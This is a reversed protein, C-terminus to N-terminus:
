KQKIISKALSSAEKISSPKKPASLSISSAGVDMKIPSSQTIKSLYDKVIREKIGQNSFIFKNLFEEDESYQEATKYSTSLLNLAEDKIDADDKNRLSEKLASTFPKAFEFKSVFEEVAKEQENQKNIESQTKANELELSALKQSKKTFEAELNNYAKLLSEADKFKGFQKSGMENNPQELEEM